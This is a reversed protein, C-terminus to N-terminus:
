GKIYKNRDEMFDKYVLYYETQEYNIKKVPLYDFSYITAEPCALLIPSHTAIVFQLHESKMASSLIQLLEIQSKPSLATEPEDLFYIGKIKYRAKFFSMLSEGHSKTLLSEGGFYKLLGPDGAAWEDLLQAFHQFIHSGFFSGPVSGNTWQVSMSQYLRDEYPNLTYRAREESKWIHVGCQLSIAELLTSKGTGNEGAFFTVPSTFEITKTKHFIDLNFPYQDLTPYKEPFLNLKLLHM